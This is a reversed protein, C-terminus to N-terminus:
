DTSRYEVEKIVRSVHGGNVHITIRGTDGILLIGLDRLVGALRRKWDFSM